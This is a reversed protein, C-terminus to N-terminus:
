DRECLIKYDCFTCVSLDECKENVFSKQQSLYELHEELKKLKLTLIAEPILKGSKLEYYFCGGEADVDYSYNQEALIRYFELQFDVASDLSKESYKPYSGSKYDIVQLYKEDVIDVRDIKGSIKMGCIDARLSTECEFVKIGRSFRDIENEFFPLLKKQWLKLQFKELESSGSVSHLAKKFNLELDQLTTYHNQKEYVVKLANHLTEGIAHEQPLQSPMEHSSIKEIYRYYFQRKCQLYSKLSTASFLHKKFDFDVEKTLDKFLEKQYSRYLIHVYEGDSVSKPSELGLQLLFRSPKAVDNLVYSLAVEKAQLFLMYYYHKQLNERDESTPLKAYARTASNLFLDKESKHPVIDENFDVVVVGEYAVGRTELVGMVTIKGGRVDDISRKYCRKLFLHLLASLKLEGLTPLIKVFLFLEEEIVKKAARNAEIELYMEILERFITSDIVEYYHKTLNEMAFFEFRKLRHQNEVSKNDLYDCSAQIIQLSDANKLSIGMAFNFNHKEDHLHLFSAFSEDPLIVAIKEPEIGEVIFKYISAKIFAVQSVRESFAKVGVHMSKEFKEFKILDLSNLNITNYASHEVNHFRSQLKTNFASAYFKMKLDIIKSCEELVQFEFNTVYGDVEIEVEGLSKIYEENLSYNRKVFIPDIVGSNTCVEKYREYLEILISIHEAFDGYVDASELLKIEVLEGSLEEFFKFIYQSNNLFSYFNRDINLKDFRAFKSAELLLFTREDADLLLKGEIFLANQLFASMTLYNPLFSNQLSLELIKTRIARSTSLIYTQQLM